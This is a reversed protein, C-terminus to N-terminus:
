TARPCWSCKLGSRSPKAHRVCSWPAVASASGPPRRRAVAFPSLDREATAPLSRPSAQGPWAPKCCWPTRAVPLAVPRPRLPITTKGLSTYRRASSRLRDAACLRWSPATMGTRGGHDAPPAQRLLPDIVLAGRHHRQHTPATPAKAQSVPRRLALVHPHVGRAMARNPHDPERSRCNCSSVPLSRNACAALVALAGRGQPAVGRRHPPSAGSQSASLSWHPPPGEVMVAANSRLVAQGAWPPVAANPHGQVNRLALDCRRVVM